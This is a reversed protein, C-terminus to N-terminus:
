GIVLAPNLKACVNEMAEVVDASPDYFFQDLAETLALNARAGTNPVPAVRSDGLTAEVIPELQEASLVPIAASLNEATLLSSRAPAFFQALKEASAKKTLHALFAAAVDANKGSKFVVFSTQGLQQTQGGPGPPTPAIGWNFTAEALLRASSLYAAEAGAEGGWFNTTTTPPNVSNDTYIMRHLLSMAEVNEPSTMTCTQPSGYDWPSAGHAYMLPVIGTWKSDNIVFGFRGQSDAIAKSAAAFNEWNYTGAEIMENPNPVGAAAYMDANFYLVRTSTSMPVGYLGDEDSWDAYYMPILDDFDYDPTNKLSDTLDMLVGSEIFYRSDDIGLWSIDPPDGALLQTTIVTPMDAATVSEFNIATVNPNEAMFEDALEEFVALQDPNSTWTLMRLSVPGENSGGGSDAAACGALLASAAVTAVAARAFRRHTM